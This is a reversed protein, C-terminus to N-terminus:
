WKVFEIEEIEDIKVQDFLISAEIEEINLQELDIPISVTGQILIECEDEADFYHDNWDSVSPVHHEMCYYDAKYIFYEIVVTVQSSFNFGLIGDGFYSIEDLHLNINEPEYIDKITAINNDDPIEPSEVEKDILANIIQSKIISEIEKNAQAYSQISKRIGEINDIFDLLLLDKQVNPSNIFESLSNYVSIKPIKSLCAGLNMDNSIVNLNDLDIIIEEIAKIIMSDPIHPKSRPEKFPPEGKFYCEFANVTQSINLPIRKAKISLAWDTFEKEIDNLFEEKNKKIQQRIGCLKEHMTKFNNKRLISEIESDIKDLSKKCLQSQQSQFEREIIYPLYLVLRNNKGLKSLAHFEQNDRKPNQRYINTDILIHMVDDKKMM